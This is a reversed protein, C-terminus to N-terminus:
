RYRAVASGRGKSKGGRPKKEAPAKQFHQTAATKRRQKLIQDASKMEHRKPKRGGPEKGAPSKRQSGLSCRLMLNLAFTITVHFDPPNLLNHSALPPPPSM